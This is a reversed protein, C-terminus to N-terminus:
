KKYKIFPLAFNKFYIRIILKKAANKRICASFPHYILRWQAFNSREPPLCASTGPWNM